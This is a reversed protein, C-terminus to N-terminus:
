IQVYNKWQNKNLLFCLGHKSLQDRESINLRVPNPFDPEISNIDKEKKNECNEKIEQVTMGSNM